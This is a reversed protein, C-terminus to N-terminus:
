EPSWRKKLQHYNLELWQLAIIATSNNIEGSQIAEYARQRPWVFVEIDENEHALGFFGGANAADVQGCFLFMKESSGGPSVWYNFMPLLSGIDVDAEERAERIAVEEHSKDEKSVMGAVVEILWPSQDSLAGIRFQRILVVEDRVPDYPLVAVAKGREFLEREFVDSWGGSFLRHRLRYRSVKFYGKYAVQHQKIEVDDISFNIASHNTM